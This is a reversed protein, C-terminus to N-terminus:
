RHSCFRFLFVLTLTSSQYFLLFTREPLAPAGSLSAPAGAAYTAMIALTNATYDLPTPTIASIPTPVDYAAGTPYTAQRKNITPTPIPHRRVPNHGLVACAAVLLVSLSSLKISAM